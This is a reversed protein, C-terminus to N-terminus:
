KAAKSLTEMLQDVDVLGLQVAPKLQNMFIHQEVLKGHIVKFFQVVRAEIMKVEVGKGGAIHAPTGSFVDAIVVWDGATWTSKIDVFGDKTSGITEKLWKTYAAKTEVKQKDGQYTLKVKDEVVAPILAQTRKNVADINKDILAKNAMETADSKSILAIPASLHADSAKPSTDNELLGLQHFVTPQDVYLSDQTFKGDGNMTAVDAEFMGLKKGSAKMGPVDGTNTGAVHIIAAIDNGSVIVLQPTIALDPFADRQGKAMERIKDTGQAVAKPVSDVQERVADPAFCGTYIDYNGANFAAWCENYRALKAEATAYKPAAAADVPPPTAVAATTTPASGSGAKDGTGVSKSCGLALAAIWWVSHLTM